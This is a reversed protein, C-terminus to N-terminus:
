KTERSNANANANANSHVLVTPHLSRGRWDTVTPTGAVVVGTTVTKTCWSCNTGHQQEFTSVWHDAARQQEKERLKRGAGAISPSSATFTAYLPRLLENNRGACRQSSPSSAARAARIPVLRGGRSVFSTMQPVAQPSSAETDAAQTSSRDRLTRFATRLLADGALLGSEGCLTLKPADVAMAQQM